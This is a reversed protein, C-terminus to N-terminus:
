RMGSIGANYLRGVLEFASMKSVMIPIGENEAKEITNEEPQRGNIIIIAALDKLSAVGVINQHIQLTIWVDGVRGNAIVDSLLDSVYGGEIKRELRDAACKVELDFKEVLEKLKM